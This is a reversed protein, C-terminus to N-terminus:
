FVPDAIKGIFLIIGSRAEDIVFLFPRDALVCPTVSDSAVYDTVDIAETGKEDVRIFSKQMVKDIWGVSDAFANSLDCTGPDFATALGLTGLAKKLDKEYRFTFKPLGVAFKSPHFGNRWFPWNERTMANILSDISLLSDPVMVTMRFRREGYPLSAAQFLENEFYTADSDNVFYRTGSKVVHEDDDLFMMRCESQSGDAHRFPWLRTKTSDFPFTWSAEFYAANLVIMAFDEDLPQSVMEAIKGETARNVWDNITDAAWPARFDIEKASADFYTSCAAIFRPQIPKGLRTWVSRAAYFNVEPDAHTLIGNLHRFAENIAQESLGKADLVDAIAKRTEGGAANYVMGLAYIASVPSVVINTNPDDSKAIEHFLDLGFRNCSAVLWSEPNGSTESSVTRANRADRREAPQDPYVYQMVFLMLLIIFFVIRM